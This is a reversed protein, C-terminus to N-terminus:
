RHNAKYFEEIKESKNSSQWYSGLANFPQDASIKIKTIKTDGAIKTRCSSSCVAVEGNSFEGHLAWRSNITDSSSKSVYSNGEADILEVTIVSEGLVNTIVRKDQDINQIDSNFKIAFCVGYSKGVVRFPRDPPATYIKVTPLVTFPKEELIHIEEEVGMWLHNLKSLIDFNCGSITVASVLVIIAKLINM